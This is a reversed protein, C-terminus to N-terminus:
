RRKQGISMSELQGRMDLCARPAERVGIIVHTRCAVRAGAGRNFLKVFM